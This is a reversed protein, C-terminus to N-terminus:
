DDDDNDLWEEFLQQLFNLIFAFIGSWIDGFKNKTASKAFAVAAEGDMGDDIAEQFKEAAYARAQQRKERRIKRRRKRKAM